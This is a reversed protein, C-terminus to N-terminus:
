RASPGPRSSDAVGRAATGEGKQDKRDKERDEGAPRRRLGEAVEAGLADCGVRTDIPCERSRQQDPADPRILDREGGVSRFAPDQEVAVITRIKAGGGVIRSSGTRLAM